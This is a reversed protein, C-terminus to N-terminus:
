VRSRAPSSRSVRRTSTRRWCRSASRAWAGSCTRRACGAFSRAHFGKSRRTACASPPNPSGDGCVDVDIVILGAMEGYRRSRAIQLRLEHAFLRGNRLGTLQDHDSLGRVEEEMRRRESIDRLQTVYHLPAGDRGRVLSMSVIATVTEGAADFYRKHVGFAPIERALLRRRQERDNAADEPHVIGEFRKGLLEDGTYGTIDCLDRNVLLWRGEMDLLGTGVVRAGPHDHADPDDERSGTRLLEWRRRATADLMLAVGAGAAEAGLGDARGKQESAEHLPGIDLTLCHGRAATWIERSRTQGLLASRALPEVTQWVERALLEGLPAGRRCSERYRLRELVPGGADVLRLEGDFVFVVADRLERLADEGAAEGGAFAGEISSQPAHSVSVRREDATGARSM